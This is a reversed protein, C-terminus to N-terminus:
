PTCATAAITVDDISWGAYDPAGGKREECIRLRFDTAEHGSANYSKFTWEADDTTGPYGTELTTWIAGNFVDVTHIVGPQGPAHLHRWFSVQLTPGIKSVDVPPSTLCWAPHSVTQDLKGLGVGAIRNDDGPSHDLAPDAGGTGITSAAAPGVAWLGEFAWGQADGTFDEFLAAGPDASICAGGQCTSTQTCGDGDDCPDGDPTDITLCAGGDCVGATCPSDMASCDVMSTAVCAGASCASALSCPDDDECADGEHDPLLECTFQPGCRARTCADAAGACEDDTFCAPTVCVGSACALSACDDNRVCADGPGCAPCSGGCDVDTEDQNAEGDDCSVPETTEPTETTTMIDPAMTSSDASGGSEGTSPETSSATEEVHQRTLCGIEVIATAVFVLTGGAGVRGMVM